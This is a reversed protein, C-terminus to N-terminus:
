ECRIYPEVWEYLEDLEGAKPAPTDRYPALAMMASWVSECTRRPHAGLSSEFFDSRCHFHHTFILPRWTEYLTAEDKIDIIEIEDLRKDRNARASKMLDVAAVDTRPASYGFFTVLYANQLAKRLDSWEVAIAPDAEYNKNTTPFLLRSPELPRGCADCSQGLLGKTKHESCYGIAVNGHLCILHPVPAHPYIRQAARWLFPDWNFTAIVDKKRLSLVLYDYLTPGDPLELAAFYEHVRNEILQVLESKGDSAALDSYVAEFNRGAFPIGAECLAVDLGLKPILDAMLPVLRGNRDGTPFAAASAGAGLIVVHPTGFSVNKLMEDREIIRM